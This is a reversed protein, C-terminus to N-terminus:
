AALLPRAISRRRLMWLLLVLVAAILMWEEPEPVTPVSGQDVPTLGAEDYQQATELVVAGSVPTVLQYRVALESAAQRGPEDGKALLREVQDAAWLRALHGSTKASRARRIDASARQERFGSIEM